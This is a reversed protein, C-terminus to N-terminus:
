AVVLRNRGTAKAEYLANDAQELLATASGGDWAAIGVSCTLGAPLSTCIQELLQVAQPVSCCGLIVGFEDGGLRGLVDDTRLGHEFLAAVQRLADDGAAHGETDNLAKFMDVDILAVSLPTGTRTARALWTNLSIEWGRRNVAGTLWDRMAMGRVERVLRGVVVGAALSTGATLSWRAFGLSLSAGGGILPVLLAASWAWQAVAVRTPFCYFSYLSVWVFFLAWSSAAPGSARVGLAILVSGIAVLVVCHTELVRDRLLWVGIAVMWAVAAPVAIGVEDRGPWGPVVLAVTSLAAGAAYLGSLARTM